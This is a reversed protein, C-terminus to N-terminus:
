EFLVKSETKKELYRKFFYRKWIDEDHTILNMHRCTQALASTDEPSLYALIFRFLEPPLTEM